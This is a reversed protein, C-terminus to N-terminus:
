EKVLAPAGDPLELTPEGGLYGLTGLFVDMQRATVELWPQRNFFGVWVCTDILVFDNQPITM